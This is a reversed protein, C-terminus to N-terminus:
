GTRDVSVLGILGSRASRSCDKERRRWSRQRRCDAPRQKGFYGQRTACQHRGVPRGVAGVPKSGKLDLDKIFIKM